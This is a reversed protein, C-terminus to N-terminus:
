DGTEKLLKAKLEAGGGKRRTELLHPSDKDKRIERTKRVMPGKRTLRLETKRIRTTGTM